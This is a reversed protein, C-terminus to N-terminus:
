ITVTNLDINVLASDVMKTLQIISKINEKNFKHKKSKTSLNLVGFVRNGSKLPVTLSARLQPQHLRSLLRPQKFSEDIFIVTGQKAAFGALGEGKKVVSECVVQEPIGKSLKIYLNELKGDFLMLSGREAEVGQGATEFLAQLMKSIYFPVEPPKKSSLNLRSLNSTQKIKEAGSEIMFNAIEQFLKAIAIISGFSYVRIHEVAEILTNIDVGLTKSLNFYEPYRRRKGLIIPGIVIHAKVINEASKVPIIIRNM